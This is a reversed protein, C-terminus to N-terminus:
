TLNVCPSRQQGPDMPGLFDGLAEHSTMIATLSPWTCDGDKERGELFTMDHPNGSRVGNRMSAAQAGYAPVSTPGGHLRRLIPKRLTTVGDCARETTSAGSACNGLRGRTDPSLRALSWFSGRFTSFNSAHRQLGSICARGSRALTDARQRTHGQLVHPLM